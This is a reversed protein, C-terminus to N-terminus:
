GPLNNNGKIGYPDYKESFGYKNNADFCIKKYSQKMIPFFIHFIKSCYIKFCGIATTGRDATHADDYDAIAPDYIAEVTKDVRSRVIIALEGSANMAKSATVRIRSGFEGFDPVLNFVANFPKWENGM